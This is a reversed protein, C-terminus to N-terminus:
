IHNTGSLITVFTELKLGTSLKFRTKASKFRPEFEKFEMESYM